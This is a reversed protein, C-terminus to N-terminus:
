RGTEREWRAEAEAAQADLDLAPHCKECYGAEVIWDLEACNICRERYNLCDSCFDTWAELWNTASLGPAYELFEGLMLHAETDFLHRKSIVEDVVPGFAEGTKDDYLCAVNDDQDWLIQSM